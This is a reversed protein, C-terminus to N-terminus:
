NHAAPLASRAPAARRAPPKACAPQKARSAITGHRDHKPVEGSIKAGAIAQNQVVRAHKGRPQVAAAVCANPASISTNRLVHAPHPPFSTSRAPAARCLAHPRAVLDNKRVIQLGFNQCCPSYRRACSEIEFRLASSRFQQFLKAFRRQRRVDMACRVGAISLSILGYEGVLATRNRRGGGTQMERRLHQFVAARCACLDGIHRQM